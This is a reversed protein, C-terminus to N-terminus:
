DNGIYTTKYNNGASLTTCFNSEEFLNYNFNKRGISTAKIAYFQPYLETFVVRGNGDTVITKSPKNQHFHDWSEFIEVKTGNGVSSSDEYNLVAVELTANPKIDDDNKCSVIILAFFVYYFIKKM